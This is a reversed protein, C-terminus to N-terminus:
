SPKISRIVSSLAKTADRTAKGGITVAAVYTAGNVRFKLWEFVPPPTDRSPSSGLLWADQHPASDLWPLPLPPVEAKEQAMAHNFDRTIVLGVDRAPLVAGSIEFTSGKRPLIVPRPLSVSSLQIGTSRVGGQTYTFRLVHWGAPVHLPWRAPSQYTWADRPGSAHLRRRIRRDLV